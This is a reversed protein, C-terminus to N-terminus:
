YGEEALKAAIEQGLQMGWDQGAIMSEQAVIPTKEAHRQGVDSSYFEILGDLDGDSYHKYYIPTLLETLDNLVDGKFNDALRTWFEDEVDPYLEKSQLIMQDIAMKFTPVSGSISLFKRVKDKYEDSQGFATFCSLFIITTLLNKMTKTANIPALYHFSILLRKPIIM